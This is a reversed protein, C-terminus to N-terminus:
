SSNLAAFLRNARKLHSFSSTSKECLGSAPRTWRLMMHAFSRVSASPAAIAAFIAQPYASTSLVRLGRPPQPLDALPLRPRLAFRWLGSTVRGAFCAVGADGRAPARCRAIKLLALKEAYRSAAWYFTARAFDSRRGLRHRAPAKTLQV